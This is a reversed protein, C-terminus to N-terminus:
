LLFVEHHRAQRLIRRDMQVVIKNHLQPCRTKCLHQIDRARLVPNSGGMRLLELPLDVGDLERKVDMNKIGLTRVTAIELDGAAQEVSQIYSIAGVVNGPHLANVYNVNLVEEHLLEHFDRSAASQVIGLILGGPILLESPDYRRTDFHKEHTLRALSALQQSQTFTLSRNMSHLILQGSRLDALSHSQLEQCVNSKSLLHDRFLHLNLSPEDDKPQRVRGVRHHSALSTSPATSSPLARENSPPISFDFLMRKDARM